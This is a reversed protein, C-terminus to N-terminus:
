LTAVTSAACLGACVDRSTANADSGEGYEGGMCCQQPSCPTTAVCPCADFSAPHAGLSFISCGPSAESGPVLLDSGFRPLLIFRLDKETRVTRQATGQFNQLKFQKGTSNAEKLDTVLLKMTQVSNGYADDSATPTQEPLPALSPRVPTCCQQTVCM